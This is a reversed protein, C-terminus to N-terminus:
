LPLDKILGFWKIVDGLRPDNYALCAAFKILFLAFKSLSHIWTLKVPLTIWKWLSQLNISYSSLIIPFVIRWSKRCLTLFAIIIIFIHSNSYESYSIQFLTCEWFIQSMCTCMYINFHQQKTALDHQVWESEMSQLRGPEETWPIRWALISSHTVMGEEQHYERRFFRVPTEEVASLSRVLQAIRHDYTYRAYM